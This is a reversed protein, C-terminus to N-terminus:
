ISLPGRKPDVDLLGRKFTPPKRNAVSHINKAMLLTSITSIGLIAVAAIGL